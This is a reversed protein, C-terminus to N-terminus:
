TRRQEMELRLSRRSQDIRRTKAVGGGEEEKGAWVGAEGRLGEGKLKEEGDFYEIAGARGVAEKAKGVEAVVEVGRAEVEVELVLGGLEVGVEKEEGDGKALGVM